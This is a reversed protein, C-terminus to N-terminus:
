TNRLLARRATAPYPHTSTLPAFDRPLRPGLFGRRSETAIAHTKPPPRHHVLGKGGGEGWIYIFQQRPLDDM